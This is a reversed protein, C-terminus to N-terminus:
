WALTDRLMLGCHSLPSDAVYDPWKSSGKGNSREMRLSWGGVRGWSCGRYFYLCAYNDEVDHDCVVFAFRDSAEGIFIKLDGFFACRL